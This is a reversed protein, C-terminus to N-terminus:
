PQCFVMSKNGGSNVAWGCAGAKTWAPSQPQAAGSYLVLIM